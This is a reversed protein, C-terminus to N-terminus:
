KNIIKSVALLDSNIIIKAKKAAKVNIKLKVTGKNHSLEIIGGDDAFGKIDSVTVINQSEVSNLISTMNSEESTAIYLLNCEELNSNTGTEIFKYSTQKEEQVEKLFHYTRDLGRTCITKKSDSDGNQWKIYSMLTHVWLAKVKSEDLQAYSSDSILLVMGFTVLILCKSLRSKIM